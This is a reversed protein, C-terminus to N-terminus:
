GDINEEYALVNEASRQSEADQSKKYKGTKEYPGIPKALAEEISAGRLLRNKLSSIHINRLRSWELLTHTEGFANFKVLGCKKVQKMLAEELSLGSEIRRILTSVSTGKIKAWDVLHKSEGFAEFKEYGMPKSLAEEPNMGKKLRRWLSRADIGKIKAWSSITQSEGFATILEGGLTKCIKHKTEELLVGGIGGPMVNYGVKNDRANFSEIARMELDAIYERSGVAMPEIKLNNEGYKRIANSLPYNSDKRYAWRVHEYLRNKLTGGTMGIYIKSNPFTIRYLTCRDTIM